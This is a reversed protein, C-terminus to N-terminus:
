KENPKDCANTKYQCCDPLKKYAREDAKEHSTEYGAGAIAKEITTLDTKRADFVLTAIKTDENWDCRKVGKIDAANEIRKKCDGCNGKVNLTTTTIGSSTQAQLGNFLCFFLILHIVTKM